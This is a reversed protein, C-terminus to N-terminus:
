SKRRKRYARMRCADSCYKKDSRGEGSKITFWQKCVFCNQLSQSGDVAQAVQTWLADLLTEPRICLRAAGTLPDERITISADIRNRGVAKWGKQSFARIFPKFNGSRGANKWAKLANRLPVVADIWNSVTQPGEYLPGYRDALAKPGEVYGGPPPLRPSSRLDLNVFDVYPSSAEAFLNFCRIKESLPELFAQLQPEWEYSTLDFFEERNKPDRAWTPTIRSGWRRLLYLEDETANEPESVSGDEFEDVEIFKSEDFYLVKYGGVPVRCEFELLSAM